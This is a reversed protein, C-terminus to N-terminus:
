GGDGPAVFIRLVSGFADLFSVDGRANIAVRPRARTSGSALQEMRTDPRWRYITFSRGPGDEAFAVTGADNIVAPTRFSRGRAIRLLTGDAHVVSISRSERLVVDDARNVPLDAPARVNRVIPTIGGEDFRFVANDLTPSNAGAYFFVAGSDSVACPGLQNFTGTFPPPLPDGTRVLVRAAEGNMQVIADTSAQFTLSGGGASLNTFGHLAFGQSDRDGSAILAEAPAAHVTQPAGLATVILVALMAPRTMAPVSGTRRMS